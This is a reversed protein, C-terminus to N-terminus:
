LFVHCTVRCTIILSGCFSKKVFLFVDCSVPCTCDSLVTGPDLTRASGSCEADEAVVEADEVEQFCCLFGYGKPHSM